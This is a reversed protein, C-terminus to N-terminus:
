ISYLRKPAAFVKYPVVESEDRGKDLQVRAHAQVASIAYMVVVTLAINYRSRGVNNNARIGHLVLRGFRSNRDPQVTSNVPNGAILVEVKFLPEQIALEILSMQRVRRQLEVKPTALLPLSYKM